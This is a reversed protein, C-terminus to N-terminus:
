EEALSLFEARVREAGRRTAPSEEEAIILELAKAAAACDEPYELRSLSNVTAHRIQHDESGLLALWDPLRERQGLWYLGQLIGLQDQVGRPRALAAELLPIAEVASLMGLAVAIDRRVVPHRESRYARLLPKVGGRLDLCALTGAAQSRVTWEPDELARVIRPLDQSNGFEGLTRIAESRNVSCSDGCMARAAVQAMTGSMQACADLAAARIDANRHALLELLILRSVCGPEEALADTADYLEDPSLRALEKARRCAEREHTDAETM